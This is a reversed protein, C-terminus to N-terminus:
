EHLASTRAGRKGVDLWAEFRWVRPSVDRGREGRRGGQEKKKEDEETGREIKNRWRSGREGDMMGKGVMECLGGTGPEPSVAASRTFVSLTPQEFDLSLCMFWHGHSSSSSEVQSWHQPTSACTKSFRSCPLRVEISSPRSLLPLHPPAWWSSVTTSTTWAPTLTPLFYM